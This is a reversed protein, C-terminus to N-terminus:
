LRENCWGSFCVSPPRSGVSVAGVVVDRDYEELCRDGEIFYEKITQAEHSIHCVIVEDRGQYVVLPEEDKRANRM